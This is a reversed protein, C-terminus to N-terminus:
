AIDDPTIANRGFSALGLRCFPLDFDRAVLFPHLNSGAPTESAEGM